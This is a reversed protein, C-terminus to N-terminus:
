FSGGSSPRLPIGSAHLKRRLEPMGINELMREVSRKALPSSLSPGLIIRELIKNMTLDPASVNAIYGIPYKLKPEVGREGIHYNLFKRLLGARDREPHYIVRWEAEESFGTHKTTLAYTKIASFAMYAVLHLKDDPLNAQKSIEAWQRLIKGLQAVRDLDTAYSVRWIGLPSTPVM